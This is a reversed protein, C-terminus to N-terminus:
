TAAPTQALKADHEQIKQRAVDPNRVAAYGQINRKKMEEKLEEITQKSAPDVQEELKRTPMDKGHNAKAGRARAGELLMELEVTKIKWPVLYGMAELERCMGSFYNKWQEYSKAQINEKEYKSRPTVESTPVYDKIDDEPLVGLKNVEPQIFNTYTHVDKTFYVVIDDVEKGVFTADNMWYGSSTGKSKSILGLAIAKNVYIKMSVTPNNHYNELFDDCNLSDGNSCRQWMVGGKTSESPVGIGKLGILGHLMSSRRELALHPAYYLAIDYQEQYPLQDIVNFVEAKRRDLLHYAKDKATLLEVYGLCYGSPTHGNKIGTRNELNYHKVIFERAAIRKRKNLERADKSQQVMYDTVDDSKVLIPLDSDDYDLEWFRRQKSSEIKFVSRGKYLPNNALEEASLQTFDDLLVEWRGSILSRMELITSEVTFTIRLKQNM